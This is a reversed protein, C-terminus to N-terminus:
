RRDFDTCRAPNAPDPPTSASLVILAGFNSIPSIIIVIFAQRALSTVAAWRSPLAM